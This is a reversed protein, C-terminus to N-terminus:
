RSYIKKIIAKVRPNKSDLVMAKEILYEARSFQNLEFHCQALQVLLNVNKPDRLYHREGFEVAQSYNKLKYLSYFVLYLIITNSPNLELYKSGYEAVKEFDRQKMYYKTILKIATLEDPYKKHFEILKHITSDPNKSFGKKLQILLQKDKEEIQLKKPSYYTIKLISIDDVIEGQEQLHEYIKKINGSQAEIVKLFLEPESNIEGNSFKIDDKGDSGVFLTDQDKLKFIKITTFDNSVDLPTDVGLRPLHTANEIFFAKGNRYVIAYPHEANIFYITGSLHDILGMIMTAGMSGRFSDFIHKLERYTNKLWREPSYNKFIFAHITRDIISELVSGIILGGAAGQLSKGMSDANLFFLYPREKLYITRAMCLDGGIEGKKGRFSFEKKQKLLYEVQINKEKIQFTGLEKLLLYTLYYDGDQIEKLRHIEEITDKLKKTQNEVMEHLKKAYNQLEKNKKRISSLMRNLTSAIYGLEDKSTIAIRTYYDGQNVKKIGKIINKIPIIFTYRLFLFYFGGIVGLLILSFIYLFIRFKELYHYSEDEYAGIGVIWDLTLNEDPISFTFNRFYALKSRLREDIPNKWVYRFYGNRRYVIERAPFVEGQKTNYLNENEFYPHMIAYIPEPPEKIKKLEEKIYHFQEEETDGVIKLYEAKEQENRFYGQFNRQFRDKIKELTYDEPYQTNPLLWLPRYSQLVFVYGENGMKLSSNSFDRIFRLKNQTVLDKQIEKSIQQLNKYIRESLPPLVKVFNQKEKQELILQSDHKPIIYLKKGNEEKQYILDSEKLDIGLQALVELFKSPYEGAEFEIQAYEVPGYFYIKLKELGEEFTINRKQVELMTDHIQTYAIDVYNKVDIELRQLSIKKAYFYFVEILTIVFFLGASIFFLTIRVKLSVEKFFKEFLTRVSNYILKM